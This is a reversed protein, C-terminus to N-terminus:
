EQVVYELIICDASALAAGLTLAVSSGSVSRNAAAVPAVTGASDDVHLACRVEGLTEKVDITAVLGSVSVVQSDSLKVVLQQVKNQVDLVSSDKSIFM